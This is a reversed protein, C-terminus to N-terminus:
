EVVPCFDARVACWLLGFRLRPFNAVWDESVSRTLITALTMAGRACYLMPALKDGAYAALSLNVGINYQASRLSVLWWVLGFRLRPSPQSNEESVSRTVIHPTRRPEGTTFLGPWTAAPNCATPRILYNRRNHWSTNAVLMLNRGVEMVFARSEAEKEIKRTNRAQEAKAAGAASESGITM